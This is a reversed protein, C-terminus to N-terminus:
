DFTRPEGGAVADWLLIQVKDNLQDDVWIAVTQGNPTATLSGVVDRVPLTRIPQASQYRRWFVYWEFGRWDTKGTRPIHRRLLEGMHGMDGAEDLRQIESMDSTYLEQALQEASAEARIWQWTSVVFGAILTVILGALLGAVLKNRRGWRLLREASSVRRARIPRDELFRQLDEALEGASPYRRAPDKQLCKLAVTEVDRPVGPVLRSPPVPEATKVQELTELITAGRFPPRGTLLEYLIAGLAYVDAAPGIGRNKGEAQEPAMYSPSGLVSDTRTLGSEVNLLKALGFDAVKPVGDPSLLINAPKLDRHVVGRRHAAAMAGALAEVLRAAERPARPTGDLRDALSGGGVYEMEFYPFGDHEDIHFIQVINPHQLKAVAEAEALFRAAAEGGAHRGALIMKVAVPRNLRVQRARYVVGMGGRGLEGEVRYGPIVPVPQPAPDASVRPAATAEEADIATMPGEAGLVGDLTARGPGAAGALSTGIAEPSGEPGARIMFAGTEPEVTGDPERDRTEPDDM